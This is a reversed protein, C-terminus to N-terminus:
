LSEGLTSKVLHQLSFNRHSPTGCYIAKVGSILIEWYAISIFHRVSFSEVEYRIGSLQLLDGNLKGIKLKFQYLLKEVVLLCYLCVIYWPTLDIRAYIDDIIYFCKVYELPYLMLDFVCWQVPFSTEILIFWLNCYLYLRQRCTQSDSFSFGGSPGGGCWDEM